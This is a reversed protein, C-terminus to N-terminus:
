AYSIHPSTQKNEKGGCGRGTLDNISQWEQTNCSLKTKLSNWWSIVADFLLVIM